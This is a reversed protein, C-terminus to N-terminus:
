SEGIADDSLALYTRLEQTSLGTLWEDGSGVIRDALASKESLLRDIREEVTGICVFKHVQVRRLQGIRHARDAAQEEVAPNWWRDFHFVHNAKTLNLGFGGAKLSLLFIRAKGKPDQFGVVMDNRKQMSTGGHLFPIETQLRDEMLKKLLTGMEKFQTFVLAADGEELVEELMEVLRECKGSRGDLPGSTKQFHAPHNCIQKLKTLAALILGRRRIGGASDVQRLTDSVTREYLAAQEPTLNCYVRMEMKEPLDCAVTPDSKLRRLVFPRILQRLQDSKKHDGYKEIPVAFRNRFASASGLLGPNLMEMISWLESLHNEIPTGTLAVRHMSKLARLAITQNASPNKIKQAEDMAIRHWQIRSLDRLERGALGYTTLVVDHRNSAEVFEDGTMRAPGHHVLVKLSRAFRQIEREWNGVVSMPAFLLTPGVTRGERREHLLLALLQITKGLGMDDALCSGIGLRDLFALWHLGRLQYPRLTGDFDPPPEFTEIEANASERLFQDVWEAGSLGVIPLGADIEEAGGALRMAQLLTMPKGAQRRMFDLAREAADTDLGIWRGHLKVLPAKDAALAEFEDLSLQQEGIAIRWDFDLLNGLGLRGLSVDRTGGADDVHPRVHLRLGLLAQGQEAWEPLTVDFGQAALLPARERLFLHAEATTLSVGGAARVSSRGLEPVIEAARRLQSMLHQRRTLLRSGLLGAAEGREALIKSLDPVLEGNGSKLEFALRWRAGKLSAEPPPEHLSFSLEPAPEDADVEGRALWDRVRDAGTSNGDSEAQVDRRAGILASLWALEWAGTEEARRHIQQFFSDGALGRRVLADCTEALFTEVLRTADAPPEELRAIARCVPPMAAVFRELWSLEGRDQVFLRWRAECRGDPQELADPCFQQRALVSLSWRALIAWYALSDSLVHGPSTPLSTLFDVGDAPAYSIAPITCRRLVVANAPVAGETMVPREREEDFPLWLELASTGAVSALLGDPSLEGVVEHLEAPSLAWAPTSSGHARDRPRVAM